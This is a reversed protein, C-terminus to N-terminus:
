GYPRDYGCLSGPPGLRITHGSHQEDFVVGADGHWQRAGQLSLAV